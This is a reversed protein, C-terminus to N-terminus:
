HPGVSINQHHPRARMRHEMEDWLQQIPNLDSSQAPWLVEKEGLQSFWKKMKRAKRVSASGHQSM